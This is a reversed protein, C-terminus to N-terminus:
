TPHFNNSYYSMFLLRFHNISTFSEEVETGISTAQPLTRNGEASLAQKYLDKSATKAFAITGIELEPLTVKVTLKPIPNHWAYFKLAKFYNVQRM